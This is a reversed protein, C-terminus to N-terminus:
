PVSQETRMEEEEWSQFFLQLSQFTSCYQNIEEIVHAKYLANM